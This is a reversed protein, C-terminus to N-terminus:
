DLIGLPDDIFGQGGGQPGFEMGKGFRRQANEVIQRGIKLGGDQKISQIVGDKVEVTFPKKTLKIKAFSLIAPLDAPLKGYDARFEGNYLNGKNDYVVGGQISGTPQTGRSIPTDPFNDIVNGGQLLQDLRRQSRGEQLSSQYRAFAAADRIRKEEKRREGEIVMDAMVVSIPDEDDVQMNPFYKKLAATMQAAQDVSLQQGKVRYSSLLNPNNAVKDAAREAISKIGEPTYTSTETYFFDKDTPSTRVGAGLKVGSSNKNFLEVVDVPPPKYYDMKPATDTPRKLEPVGMLGGAKWGIPLDHIAKDKLIAQYDTTNRAEPNNLTARILNTYEKDIEKANKSERALAILEDAKKQAAMRKTYDKPTRKAEIALTRYEQLGKNFAELEQNRMNSPNLSKENAENWADFAEQEAAARKLRRDELKSIYDSLSRNDMVVATSSYIEPSIPVM